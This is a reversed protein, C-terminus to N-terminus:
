LTTWGLEINVLMEDLCWLAKEKRRERFSLVLVLARNIYVALLDGIGLIRLM